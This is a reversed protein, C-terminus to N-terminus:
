FTVSGSSTWKYIRYGGAVTITPSGTTSAAAAVSDATRLIVIGSGGNAGYGGGAYSTDRGRGGGGGGGTNATGATGNANPSNVAGAGGGGAGGGGGSGYASAGGGGGGAYYTATGSISSEIGQGGGGATWYYGNAGSQFAGGGGGGGGPVIPNSAGYMGGGGRTGQGSTGQNGQSRTGSGYNGGSYGSTGGGSGGAAWDGGGGGLSTITAFVSDSTSDNFRTGGAGVTVTYTTGRNLTLAPEASSGGGNFTDTSGSTGVSTRYGGAGGGGGSPDSGGGGGGVVLFDVTLQPSTVTWTLTRTATKVSGIAAATILSATTGAGSLTGSITAGSLSLGSPLANATYAISKGASSTASLTLSFADSIANSYTQDSAPTNFTVSEPNVTYSFSRDTDQNQYDTAKVTFNYTTSSALTNATGLVRGNGYLALGGPLSGSVLSYIVPADGTAALQTNVIDSEYITSLSGAATTWAPVGSFQIGVVSIATAGDPNIVYLSYSGTTKAPSVFTIETGSVVTVVSVATGDIVVSAGAAFGSGTITLTQGGAVDAATDDGIYTIGAIKITGISSSDVTTTGVTLQNGIYVNAFKNNGSGLDTGSPPNLIAQNKLNFYNSM